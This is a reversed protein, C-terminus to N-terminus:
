ASSILHDMNMSHARCVKIVQKLPAASPFLLEERRSLEAEAGGTM